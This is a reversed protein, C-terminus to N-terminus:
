GMIGVYDWFGLCGRAPDLTESRATWCGDDSVHVEYDAYISSPVDALVQCNWVGPQRARDCIAGAVHGVTNSEVSYELPGRSVGLLRVPMLVALTGAAAAVLLLGAVVSWAIRRRRRWREVEHETV